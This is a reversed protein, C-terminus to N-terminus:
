LSDLLADMDDPEEYEPLFTPNMTWRSLTSGAIALALSMQRVSPKPHMDKCLQVHEVVLRQITEIMQRAKAILEFEKLVYRDPAIEYAAEYHPMEDAVERLVQALRAIQEPIPQRQWDDALTGANADYEEDM